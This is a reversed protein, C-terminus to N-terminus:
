LYVLNDCRRVITVQPERSVRGNAEWLDFHMIVFRKGELHTANTQLTGMYLLYTNVLLFIRTVHQYIVVKSLIIMFRWGTTRHINGRGHSFHWQHVARIPAILLTNLLLMESATPVLM